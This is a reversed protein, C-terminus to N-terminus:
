EYRLAILPDVRTARRAPLYGALAAVAALVLTSGLLALPDTPTLGFLFSKVLRTAAFALPLGLAIGVAVLLLSEKLVMGLVRRKQAGLAMRIGIENTRRVVAYSMTGYLGVCALGLALLGFFSTLKAFLRENLITEDIQETQTKIQSLPVNKDLGQVAQRIAPAWNMPNRATRVEFNMQWLNEPNQLSAVYVTTGIDFDSNLSSYKANRAVGVIEIESPNKDSFGFRRGVPSQGPFYHRAFAESVVAVKPSTESDQAGISRGLLVPIGMTEFFGPGVGLTGVGMDEEPKPKYGEISIDNRNYSESILAHQSFSTSRVGPLAAVGELVDRYFAALRQGSYGSTTPDISFLLLNTRNFGVDLTELNVLTRVFLSAGVVLLLSIAVQAVILFKGLGLRTRGLITAPPARREAGAAKLAPTLDVRTGRLAPVLGFLLGTMLAVGLTFGLIRADPNVNVNVQQWGGSMFTVLLHSGWYALLLGIAGGM